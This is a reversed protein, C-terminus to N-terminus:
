ARVTTRKRRALAAAKRREHRNAPPPSFEGDKLADAAAADHKRAREQWEVFDREAQVQIEQM